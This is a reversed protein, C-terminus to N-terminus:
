PQLCCKKGYRVMVFPMIQVFWRALMGYAKDHYWTHSIHALCSKM